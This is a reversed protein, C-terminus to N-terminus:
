VRDSKFRELTKNAAFTFSNSQDLIEWYYTRIQGTKDSGSFYKDMFKDMEDEIYVLM